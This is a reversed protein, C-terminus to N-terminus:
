GRRPPSSGSIRSRNPPTSIILWRSRQPKARAASNNSVKAWATTTAQDFGSPDVCELVALGQACHEVVADIWEVGVGPVDGIAIDVVPDFAAREDAPYWVFGDGFRGEDPPVDPSEGVPLDDVVTM